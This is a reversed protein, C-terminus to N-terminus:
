VTDCALVIDDDSSCMNVAQSYLQETFNKHQTSNLLRHQSRKYINLNTAKVSEVKRM